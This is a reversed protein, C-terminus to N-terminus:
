GGFFFRKLFQLLKQTIIKELRERRQIVGVM